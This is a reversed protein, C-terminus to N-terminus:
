ETGVTVGAGAAELRSAFARSNPHRRISRLGDVEVSKVRRGIFEKELDRRITEVEPLEPM